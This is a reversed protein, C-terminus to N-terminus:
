RTGAGADHWSGQSQGLRPLSAGADGWGITNNGVVRILSAGADRYGLTNASRAATIASAGADRYGTPSNGTSLAPAPAARFLPSASNVYPVSGTTYVSSSPVTDARLGPAFLVAGAALAGVVLVIIVARWINRSRHSSSTTIEM